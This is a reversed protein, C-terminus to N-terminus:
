LKKVSPLSKLPPQTTPEPGVEHPAQMELIARNRTRLKWALNEVTQCQPLARLAIYRYKNCEELTDSLSNPDRKIYSDPKEQPINSVKSLYGPNEYTEGLIDAILEFKIGPKYNTACITIIFSTM